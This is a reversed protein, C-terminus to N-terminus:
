IRRQSNVGQGVEVSPNLIKGLIRGVKTGKEASKTADKGSPVPNPNEQATSHLRQSPSEEIWM